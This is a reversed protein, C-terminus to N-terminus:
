VFCFFFLSCNLGREDWLSNIKILGFENGSGLAIENKIWNRVKERMIICQWLDWGHFLEKYYCLTRIKDPVIRSIFMIIQRKHELIFYLLKLLSPKTLEIQFKTVKIKIFKENQFGVQMIQSTGAQLFIFSFAGLFLSWIYYGRFGIADNL